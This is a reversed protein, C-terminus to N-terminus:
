ILTDKIHKKLESLFFINTVDNVLNIETDALLYPYFFFHYSLSSKLPTSLFNAIIIKFYIINSLRVKLGGM